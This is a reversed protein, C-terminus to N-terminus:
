LGTFLSSKLISLFSTSPFFVFFVIGLEGVSWPSVLNTSLFFVFMGEGLTVHIM